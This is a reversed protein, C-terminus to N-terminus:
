AGSGSRGRSRGRWWGGPPGGGWRAIPLCPARFHVLQVRCRRKERARRRSRFPRRRRHLLIRLMYDSRKIRTGVVKGGRIVPEEQGVVAREYATLEIPTAALAVALECNHAFDPDSSQHNYVTSSFIGTIRCADLICGTKALAKLYVQKRAGTFADRRQRGNEEPPAIEWPMPDGPSAQHAGDPASNLPSASDDTETEPSPASRSDTRDM